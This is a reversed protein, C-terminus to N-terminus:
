FPSWLPIYVSPHARSAVPLNGLFCLPQRQLAPQPTILSTKYGNIKDLELSLLLPVHSFLNSFALKEGVM